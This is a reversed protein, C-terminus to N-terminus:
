LFRFWKNKFLLFRNGSTRHVRACQVAIIQVCHIIWFSTFRIVCLCKPYLAMWKYAKSAVNANKVCIFFVKPLYWMWESLEWFLWVFWIRVDCWCNCKSCCVYSLIWCSPLFISIVDVSPSSFSLFHLSFGYLIVFVASNSGDLPTCYFFECTFLVLLFSFFVSHTEDLWWLDNWTCSIWINCQWLFLLLLIDYYCCFVGVFLLHLFM